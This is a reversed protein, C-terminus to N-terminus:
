RGAGFDIWRMSYHHCPEENNTRAPFIAGPLLYKTPPQSLKSAPKMCLALPTCSTATLAWEFFFWFLSVFCRRADTGQSTTCLGAQQSTPTKALHSCPRKFNDRRTKENQALQPRKNALAQTLTKHSLSALRIPFLCHPGQRSPAVSTRKPRTTRRTSILKDLIVHMAINIARLAFCEESRHDTIVVLFSVPKM